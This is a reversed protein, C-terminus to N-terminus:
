GVLRRALDVASAADPAYGDAGIADAFSQTIPAGGVVVRVGRARVPALAEVATRIAPMTTTLLASLGILDARQEDAAKVFEDAKVNTGLDVVDFGAGRWMMAVLNKGISHVYGAVTGILARYRPQVGAAVLTPALLAMSDSMALSAMLMQPIFIEKCQFRQGVDDMANVMADVLQNPAAGLKLLSETLEVAQARKGLRVAANLESLQQDIPPHSMTVSRGTRCVGNPNPSVTIWIMPPTRM